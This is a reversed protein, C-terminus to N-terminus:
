DNGIDGGVRPPTNNSTHRSSSGVRRFFEHVLVKFALFAEAKTLYGRGHINIDVSIEHNDLITSFYLMLEDHTFADLKKSGEETVSGALTGEKVCVKIVGGFYLTVKERQPVEEPLASDEKPPAEESSASETPPRMRFLDMIYGAIGM